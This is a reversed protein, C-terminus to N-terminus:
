WRPKIGQERQDDAADSARHERKKSVSGIEAEREEGEGAHAHRNGSHGGIRSLRLPERKAPDRESRTPVGPRRTFWSRACKAAWAAASWRRKHSM